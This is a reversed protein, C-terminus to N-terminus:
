TCGTTLTPTLTIAPIPTNFHDCAIATINTNEPTHSTVFDFLLFSMFLSSHLVFLSSDLLYIFLSSDLPFRHLRAAGFGVLQICFPFPFLFLSLPFSTFFSPFLSSFLPKKCFFLIKCIKTPIIYFFIPFFPRYKCCLFLFYIFLYAIFMLFVM